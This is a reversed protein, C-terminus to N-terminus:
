RSLIRRHNGVGKLSFDLSKLMVGLTRGIDKAKDRVM